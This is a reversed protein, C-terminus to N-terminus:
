VGQNVIRELADMDLHARVHDALRDYAQERDFARGRGQWGLSRLWQHRLADNEFFGHLYTGWVAGTEGVSGDLRRGEGQGIECLASQEAERVPSRGMHIEYGRVPTGALEAFPGCAARLVGEVRETRKTRLFTTDLDLLGLGPAEAGPEAEVGEPDSLSRGLMQYGGCIGVVPTGRAALRLIRDALGTRRLWALDILTAKTGPLIVADVGELDELDEARDVFRVEVGPEAALPDFDDFNSLHPLRLVAITLERSGDRPSQRDDLSASDEAAVGIDRLFPIVGLTPVGFARERLMELGDGLLRADGHLKNIIFGKVLAREEPELLVMTGVLQAFVGGLSIDGVLLVPAGAYQAMGMNAIDEGARKLNIEAPGGIGELIVLDYDERLRDFCVTIRSWLEPKLSQWNTADMRGFVRGELVIQSGPGEPKILLPNMEARPVVGAAEAQILTSRGIERGDPTVGSNLAVNQAKFPAVRMGARAFLRCLATVLISKGANSHTGMVMLTKAAM